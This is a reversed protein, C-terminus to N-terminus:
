ICWPQYRRWRLWCRSSCSPSATRVDQRPALRAQLGQVTADLVAELDAVRGQLQAREDALGRIYTDVDQRHYGQSSTRFPPRAPTSKMHGEYM